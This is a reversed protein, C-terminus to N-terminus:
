EDIEWKEVFFKEDIENILYLCKKSFKTSIVSWGASIKLINFFCPIKVKGLFDLNYSFYDGEAFEDCYISYDRRRIVVFGRNLPVMYSVPTVVKSLTYKYRKNKNNHGQEKLFKEISDESIKIEKTKVKLEAIKKGNLDFKLILYKRPILLYIFNKNYFFSHETNEGYLFRHRDDYPNYFETRYYEKANLSPFSGIWFSNAELNKDDLIKWSIFYHGKEILEFIFLGSIKDYKISKKYNFEKDYISVRLNSNETIYINEDFPSIINTLGVDGPGQGYHFSKKFIKKLDNNYINVLFDKEGDLASKGYIYVKECESDIAIRPFLIDPLEIRKLLKFSFNLLKSEDLLIEKQISKVDKKCHTLTIILIPILILLKVRM